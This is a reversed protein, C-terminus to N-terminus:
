ASGPPPFHRGQCHRCHYYAREFRLTGVLSEVTRVKQGKYRMRQGCHPCLPAEVPHAADQDEIAVVAMQESLQRRVKLVAGEIQSLNPKAAQEEWDLFEDIMAEAAKVLEARKQERTHRM